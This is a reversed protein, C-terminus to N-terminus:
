NISSHGRATRRGRWRENQASDEALYHMDGALLPTDRYSKGELRALWMGRRVETYQMLMRRGNRATLREGLYSM